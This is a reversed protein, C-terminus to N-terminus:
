VSDQTAGLVGTVPGVLGVLGIVDDASDAVAETLGALWDSVDQEAAAGVKVKLPITVSLLAPVTRYWQRSGLPLPGAPVSLKLRAPVWVTM